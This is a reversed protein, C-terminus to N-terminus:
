LPSCSRVRRISVEEDDDTNLCCLLTGRSGEKLNEANSVSARTIHINNEEDDVAFVKGGKGIRQCWFKAHVQICHM